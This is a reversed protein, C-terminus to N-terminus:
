GPLGRGGAVRVRADRTLIRRRHVTALGALAFGLVALSAPEAAVAEFGRIEGTSADVYSGVIDGLNNIGFAQTFGPLGLPDDLTTFSGGSEVFANVGSADLYTGVVQGADNIGYATTGFTGAPDDLTVFSGATWVFGHSVGGAIYAGVVQGASNIGYVVTSGAIGLPDDLPTYVGGGSSVFGHSGGGLDDFYGSQVGANNIGWAFTGSSAPVSFGMYSPGAHVFGTTAGGSTTSYGIVTGADNIGNAQTSAAAPVDLPSYTGGALLFGHEVNSTDVYSGVVQGANNIGRAVTNGNDAPDAITLFSYSAHAIGGSAALM